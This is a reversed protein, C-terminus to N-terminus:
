ALDLDHLAKVLVDLTAEEDDGSVTITIEAGQPVGLSMIGMISKLNVTKGNYTLKIDEDHKAAEQSLKSSPRAHMGAEDKITVKKEVTKV